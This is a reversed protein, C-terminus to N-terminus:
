YREAMADLTETLLAVFEDKHQRLKQIRREKCARDLDTALAALRLAGYSAACSKLTHFFGQLRTIDEEVDLSALLGVKPQNETIFVEFLMPLMEAGVDTALRELTEECLLPHM